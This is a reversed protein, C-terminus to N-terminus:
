EAVDNNQQLEEKHENMVDRAIQEDLKALAADIAALRMDTLDRFLVLAKRRWLQRDSWKFNKNFCMM